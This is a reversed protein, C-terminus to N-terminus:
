QFSSVTHGLPTTGGQGLLKLPSRHVSYDVHITAWPLPCKLHPAATGITSTAWRSADM